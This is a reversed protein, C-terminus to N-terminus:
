HYIRSQCLIAAQEAVIYGHSLIRDYNDFKTILVENKM